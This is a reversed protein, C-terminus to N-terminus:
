ADSCCALLPPFRQGAARAAGPAWRQLLALHEPDDAVTPSELFVVKLAAMEGSQIHQALVVQLLCARAQGGRTPHLQWTPRRALRRCARAAGPCPRSGATAAAAACPCRLSPGVQSMAGSGLDKLVHWQRRAPHDDWRQWGEDFDEAGCVCCSMAGCAQQLQEGPQHLLPTRRCTTCAHM